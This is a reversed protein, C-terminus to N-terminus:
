KSCGKKPLKVQDVSKGPKGLLRHENDSIRDLAFVTPINDLGAVRVVKLGAGASRTGNVAAVIIEAAAIFGGRLFVVYVQALRFFVM